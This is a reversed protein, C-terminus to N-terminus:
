VLVVTAVLVLALWFATMMVYEPSKDRPITGLLFVFFGANGMGNMLQRTANPQGHLVFAAGMITAALALGGALLPWGGRVIWKMLLTSIVTMAALAAGVALATQDAAFHRRILAAASVPLLSVVSALIGFRWKSQVNYDATNVGCWSMLNM